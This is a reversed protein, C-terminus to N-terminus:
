NKKYQEPYFCEECVNCVLLVDEDGILTGDCEYPCEAGVFMENKEM